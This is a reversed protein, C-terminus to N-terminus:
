SCRNESIFKYLNANADKKSKLLKLYNKNEKLHETNPLTKVYKANMSELIKRLNYEALDNECEFTANIKKM